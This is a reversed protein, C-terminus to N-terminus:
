YRQECPLYLDCRSCYELMNSPVQVDFTAAHSMSDGKTRSPLNSSCYDHTSRCVTRLLQVECCSSWTSQLLHHSSCNQRKFSSIAGLKIIGAISLLENSNGHLVRIM